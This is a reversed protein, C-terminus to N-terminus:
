ITRVPEGPERAKAAAKVNLHVYSMSKDSAIVLDVSPSGKGETAVMWEATLWEARTCNRTCESGELRGLDGKGLGDGWCRQSM